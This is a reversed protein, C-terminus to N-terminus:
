HEAAARSTLQAGAQQASSCEPGVGPSWRGGDSKLLLHPASQYIIASRLDDFKKCINAISATTTVSECFSNCKQWKKNPHKARTSHRPCLLVSTLLSPLFPPQQVGAPRGAPLRSCCQTVGAFGGGVDCERGESSIPSQPM